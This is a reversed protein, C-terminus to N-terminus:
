IEKLFSDGDQSQFYVAICGEPKQEFIWEAARRRAGGAHKSKSKSTVFLNYAILNGYEDFLTIGDNNILNICLNVDDKLKILNVYDGSKKYLEMHQALLIPTKLWIGGKLKSDIKSNAKVFVCICGHVNQRLLSSFKQWFVKMNNKLSGSYNKCLFSDMNSSRKQPKLLGFSFIVNTGYIGRISFASADLYSIHILARAGLQQENYKHGFIIDSFNPITLNDTQKFFGYETKTADVEIYICWGDNCLPIISKMIQLFDDLKKNTITFVQKSTLQQLFYAIDTGIIIQPHIKNEEEEYRCFKSLLILLENLFSPSVEMKEKKLIAKIQKAGTAYYM